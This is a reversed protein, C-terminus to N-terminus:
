NWNPDNQRADSQITQVELVLHYEADNYEIPADCNFTVSKMFSSTADNKDLSDNFYYWGDTSNYTWDRQNDFNITAATASSAVPTTTDTKVIFNGNADFRITNDLPVATTTGTTPDYVHGDGWTSSKIRVRVDISTDTTNTVTLTKDTETCPTWDTPADFQETFTISSDALHFDNDFSQTYTFYAFSGGIAVALASVAGVAVLSKKNKM